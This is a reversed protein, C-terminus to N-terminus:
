NRHGPEPSASAGTIRRADRGRNSGDIPPTSRTYRMPVAACVGAGLNLAANATNSKAFDIDWSKTKDGTFTTDVRTAYTGPATAANLGNVVIGAAGAIGSAQRQRATM